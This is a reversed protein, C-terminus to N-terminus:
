YGLAVLMQTMCVDSIFIMLSAAVVTSTTSRGVGTTGGETEFGYYAGTAGIILGFVMTKGLGWMLDALTVYYLTTEKYTDLTVGGITTGILAGGIIGLADSLAALLPLAIICAAIRTAVLYQRPDVALVRLADIQRTVKMSGLEASIGSGARGAVMLATVVPGLEKTVALGVVVAVYHVVGFKKLLTMTQLALVLGIAFAAIATLPLSKFGIEYVQQVVIRLPFGPRFASRIASWAFQWLSGVFSLLEIGQRGAGTVLSPKTSEKM